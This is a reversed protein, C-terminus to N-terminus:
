IKLNGALVNKLLFLTPWRQAVLKLLFAQMKNSSSFGCKIYQSVLQELFLPCLLSCYIQQHIKISAVEAVLVFSSIDISYLSVKRIAKTHSKEISNSFM